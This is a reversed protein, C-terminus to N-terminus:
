EDDIAGYDVPMLRRMPFARGNELYGVSNKFERTEHCFRCVGVSTAGAAPRIMWHHPCTKVPARGLSMTDSRPGFFFDAVQGDPLRGVGSIHALVLTAESPWRTVPHWRVRLACM